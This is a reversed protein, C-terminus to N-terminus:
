LFNTFAAWVLYVFLFSVFFRFLAFFFFFVGGWACVFLVVVVFFFCFFLFLVVYFVFCLLIVCFCFLFLVFEWFLFFFDFNFLLIPFSLFHKSFFNTFPKPFPNKKMIPVFAHTILSMSRFLGPRWFLSIYWLDADASSFFLVLCTSHLM